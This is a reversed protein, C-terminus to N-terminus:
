LLAATLNFADIDCGVAHMNPEEFSIREEPQESEDTHNGGASRKRDSVAAANAFLPPEFYDVWADFADLPIHFTGAAARELHRNRLVLRRRCEAAACNLWFTLVRRVGPAAAAM